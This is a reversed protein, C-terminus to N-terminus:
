NTISQYRGQKLRELPSFLKGENFTEEGKFETCMRESNGKKTIKRRTRKTRSM